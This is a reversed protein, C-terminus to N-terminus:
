RPFGVGPQTGAIYAEIIAGPTGADVPVGAARDVSMFVINSPPGFSPPNKRDGRADIYAKMFEIWIPLAAVAGTESPGLPKKLDFGVWVGVTINPDFGVFWADTYDDVTGTKGGLPWNLVAAKAATGRNVVGRLLNTIVFATDARIGEHPQPRQEELLTGDREVVNVISYPQMRVGQNPFASYASTVELLTAESAGLATSLYPQLPSEFGLRRAYSIVQGPTLQEMMRVTPVNRSQELVRRLTISGEYKRDYNQPAYPPQGAGAHYSVPADMLLSSPTYGRDIAATFVIPKFASGVQRPAQVARNFKSRGFDFGGVMARIQGTRNDIALLAGEMQPTQELTATITGDAEDIGIVAVEILDGPRFLEAASQRGTWQFASRALDILYSGARVRAAGPALPKVTAVPARRDRPGSVNMVIAPVVDGVRIPRDWRRDRYGELTQGESVVNRSPRRFGRRKELQRLGHNLALNAARQLEADLTTHVVLGAEYLERAGYQHELHKRVEEVFYPAISRGPAPLGALVIPKAQAADADAQSIYGEVAMRDLAYNRRRTAWKLNVYPSQREPLQLIGAILAAEELKLDKAAKGFYVRSAAEVGYAGHGLNMQNCFLTFIERKTYRKEIQIALVAEKIKRELTKDPKLFLNRALMQTLTSAGAPSRWYFAIDKIATVLIRSFKVGFHSEFGADEASMIAQRLVPPIDEYRILVRRQTAYEGVLSGDSALVRTITAPTYEDLATVEPLDGTYAALVGALIGLLAAMM